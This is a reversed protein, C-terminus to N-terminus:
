KKSPKFVPHIKVRQAEPIWGAFVVSLADIRHGAIGEGHVQAICQHLDSRLSWLEAPIKATDIKYLLRDAHVGHCGVLAGRLSIQIDALPLATVSPTKAKPTGFLRQFIMNM